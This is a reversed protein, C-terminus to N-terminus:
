LREKRHTLQPEWCADPSRLACASCRGARSGNARPRLHLSSTGEGQTRPVLYCAVAPLLWIRREFPESQKMRPAPSTHPPFLLEPLPLAARHHGKGWAPCLRDVRGTASSIWSAVQRKVDSLPKLCGSRLRLHNIAVSFGLYSNTLIPVLFPLAM